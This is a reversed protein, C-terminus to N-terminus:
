EDRMWEAVAVEKAAELVKMMQEDSLEARFEMEFLYHGYMIDGVLYRGDDVWMIKYAM